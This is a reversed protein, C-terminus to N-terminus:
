RDRPPPHAAPTDPFSQGSRDQGGRLRGGPRGEPGRGRVAGTRSAHITKAARRVDDEEAQAAMRDLAEVQAGMESRVGAFEASRLAAGMEDRSDRLHRSAELRRGRRMEEAAWRKATQAQQFLHEARVEARGARGSVDWGAEATVVLTSRRWLLEAPDVHALEVTPEGTVPDQVFCNLNLTKHQTFPDVM